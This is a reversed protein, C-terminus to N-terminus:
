HLWWSRQHSLHCLIHWFHLLSQTQDRPQSSGRSFPIAIWELIRAQLIGHVSSGLLSCDMPNFLTPCLKAVLCCCYCIVTTDFIVFRHHWFWSISSMPGILPTSEPKVPYIYSVIYRSTLVPLNLCGQIEFWPKLDMTPQIHSSPVQGYLLGIRGAIKCSSKPMQPDQYERPGQLWKRTSKTPHSYMCEQTHRIDEWVHAKM